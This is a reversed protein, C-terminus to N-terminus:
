DMLRDLLAWQREDWVKRDTSVVVTGGHLMAIDRVNNLFKIITEFSNYILLYEIGDLVVVGHAGREKLSHLYVNILETIKPLNTPSISGATPTNSLLYSQWEKPVAHPNRVFALAPFEAMNSVFVGYHEPPMFTIGPQIAYQEDKTNVNISLSLFRESRVFAVMAHAILVTLLASILFGIPAFWQVPRLLPYDMEHLGYLVTSISLLRVTGPYIRLLSWTLGGSFVLFLGSVAYAVGITALWSPSPDLYGAILFYAILIFPTTALYNRVPAPTSFEEEVLHISAYFFTSAMLAETIASLWDVEIMDGLVQISAFLFTLGFLLASRRKSRSYVLTLYALAALKAGLSLSMGTLLLVGNM